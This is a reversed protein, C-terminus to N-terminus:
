WGRQGCYSRWTLAIGVPHRGASAIAAAAHNVVSLRVTFERGAEVLPIARVVRVAARCESAPLPAGHGVPILTRWLSRVRRAAPRLSAPVLMRLPNM